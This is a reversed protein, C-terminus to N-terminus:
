RQFEQKLTATADRIGDLIDERSGRAM